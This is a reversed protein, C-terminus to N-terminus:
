VSSLTNNVSKSNYIFFRSALMWCWLCLAHATETEELRVMCLWSEVSHAGTLTFILSEPRDDCSSMPWLKQKVISLLPPPESFLITLSLSHSLFACLVKHSNRFAKDVWCNNKNMMYCETWRGSVAMLKSRLPQKGLGVWLIQGEDTTERVTLLFTACGWM